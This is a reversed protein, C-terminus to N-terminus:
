LHTNRDFLYIVKQLCNFKLCALYFKFFLEGLDCSKIKTIRYLKNLFINFEKKLM